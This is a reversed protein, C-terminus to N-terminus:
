QPYLKESIITTLIQVFLFTFFIETGLVTMVVFLVTSTYHQLQSWVM